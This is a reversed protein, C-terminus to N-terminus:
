RYKKVKIIYPSDQHCEENSKLDQQQMFLSCIWHFKLLEVEGQESSRRQESSVTISRMEERGRLVDGPGSPIGDIKILAVAWEIERGRAWMNLREIDVPTKGEAKLFEVIM